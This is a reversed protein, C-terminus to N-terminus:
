RGGRRWIAMSAIRPRGLWGWIMIGRRVPSLRSRAPRRASRPGVLRAVGPPRATTSTTWQRGGCPAVSPPCTCIPVVVPAPRRGCVTACTPTTRAPQCGTPVLHWVDGASDSGYVQSDTAVFVYEGREHRVVELGYAIRDEVRSAASPTWATTIWRLGDLRLVCSMWRRGPFSATMTAFASGYWDCAVRMIWHATPEGIVGPPRAPPPTPTEVVPAAGASDVAFIRGGSTGVWISGGTSSAVASIPLDDPVDGLREWHYIHERGADAFLGYVGRQQGDGDGAAAGAVQVMLDGNANRFSPRRVPDVTAPILFGAGERGVVVRGWDAFPPGPLSHQALASDDMITTFVDDRWLGNWGGDGGTVKLWGSGGDVAAVVNGNDQTGASILDRGGDSAVALTGSFQRNTATSTCYCELTPLNRNLTSRCDPYGAASGNVAYRLLSGSDVEVVGGDSGVYTAPEGGAGAIGFRLCHVDAHLHARDAVIQRWTLGADASIFSGIQWGM